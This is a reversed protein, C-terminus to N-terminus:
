PFVEIDGELINNAENTEPLTNAEDVILRYRYKGPKTPQWHHHGAQMSYDSEDGPGKDVTGHDFAVRAGDVYLDIEYTEGPVVDKGDNRISHGLVVKDGV